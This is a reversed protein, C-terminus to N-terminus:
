FDFQAVNSWAVFLFAVVSIAGAVVTVAAAIASTFIALLCTGGSAFDFAVRVRTAKETHNIAFM